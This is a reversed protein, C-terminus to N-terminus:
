GLTSASADNEVGRGLCSREPAVRQARARTMFNDAAPPEIGSGKDAVTFVSGADDHFHVMEVTSSHHSHLVPRLVYVCHEPCNQFKSRSRRALQLSVDVWGWFRERQHRDASGMLVLARPLSSLGRTAEM